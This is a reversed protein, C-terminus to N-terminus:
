AAGAAGGPQAPQKGVLEVLRQQAQQVESTLGAAPGDKVVAELAAKENEGDGRDRYIKAALLMAQVRTPADLNAMEQIAALREMAEDAKGLRYTLDAVVLYDKPQSRYQLARTACYLAGPYDGQAMKRREPSLWGLLKIYTERGPTLVMERYTDDESPARDVGGKVVYRDWLKPLLEENVDAFMGRLEDEGVAPGNLGAVYMNRLAGDLGYPMRNDCTLLFGASNHYIAARDDLEDRRAFSIPLINGLAFNILYRRYSVPDPENRRTRYSEIFKAAAYNAMGETFWRPGSFGQGWWIHAVEHAVLALGMAGSGYSGGTGLTFVLGAEEFAQAGSEGPVIFVAQSRPGAQGPQAEGWLSTYYDLMDGVATVAEMQGVSASLEPPAYVRLNGWATSVGAPPFATAVIMESRTSQPWTASYGSAAAHIGAGGSALYSCDGPLAAVSITLDAPHDEGPQLAGTGFRYVGAYGIAEFSDPVEGAGDFVLTYETGPEFSGPVHLVWDSLGPGGRTCAARQGGAIQVADFTLWPCSIFDLHEKAESVGLRVTIKAKLQGLQRSQGDGVPPVFAYGYEISKFRIAPDLEGKEPVWPTQYMTTGHAFDTITRNIGAEDVRIDFRQAEADASQPTVWVAAFVEKGVPDRLKLPAGAGPPRHESSAQEVWGDGYCQLYLGEFREREAQSLQDWNRIALAIGEPRLAAESTAAAMIYAADLKWHIDPRAPNMEHFLNLVGGGTPKLALSLDLDGLAIGATRREIGGFLAVIGSNILVTGHPLDAKIGRTTVFTAGHLDALADAPAPAASVSGACVVILALAPAIRM